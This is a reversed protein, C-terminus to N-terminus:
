GQQLELLHDANEQLIASMLRQLTEAGSGREVRTQRADLHDHMQQALVHVEDSLGERDFASLLACVKSLGGGRRRDIPTGLPM